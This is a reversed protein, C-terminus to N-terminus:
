DKIDVLKLESLLADMEKHDLFILNEDDLLNEDVPLLVSELRFSDMTSEGYLCKDEICDIGEGYTYFTEEVNLFGSHDDIVAYKPIYHSFLVKLAKNKGKYELKKM